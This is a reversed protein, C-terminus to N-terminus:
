PSWSKIVLEAAAVEVQQGFRRNYLCMAADHAEDSSSCLGDKVLVIRYGRDVGGLVTAAVCVDTEGGTVLITDAGRAGLRADLSAWPSYVTKDVVEAPPVLSALEPVLDVMGPELRDLTM